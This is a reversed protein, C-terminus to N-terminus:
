KESSLGEIPVEIAIRHISNNAYGRFNWPSQMPQCNGAVDTARAMFVFHGSTSACYTSHWQSWSNPDVKGLLEAEQWMQGGDTSVEVKSLAHEGSWAFGRITFPGLRVIEGHRPSTIISKVKLTTVAVRDQANEVGENIFVYRNKQFFGDYHSDVVKIDTLWKVSAMGYWRPVVLRLPFGHNRTLPVGNMNYALLTDPHICVSLPLSRSYPLHTSYIEGDEEEEGADDGRFIVELAAESIGASELLDVLSIGEWRATSVAGHGFPVGEAPPSSYARSNGACELTVVLEKKKFALIDVFSLDLAKDVMGHVKLRWSRKDLCPVNQFHNRVYFQEVKTVHSDLTNLPAERIFPDDSLVIRTSLNPITQKAYAM